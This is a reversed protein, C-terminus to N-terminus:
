CGGVLVRHKVRVIKVGSGLEIIESETASPRVFIKPIHGFCTNKMIEKDIDAVVQRYLSDLIDKDVTDSMNRAALDIAVGYHKMTMDVAEQVSVPKRFFKTHIYQVVRSIYKSIVMLSRMEPM